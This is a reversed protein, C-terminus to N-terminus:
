TSRLAIIRKSKKVPCKVNNLYVKPFVTNQDRVRNFFNKGYM